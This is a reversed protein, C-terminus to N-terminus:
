SMNMDDMEADDEEDHSVSDDNDDHDNDDDDDEEEDEDTEPSTKGTLKLYLQYVNTQIPAIELFTGYKSVQQFSDQTKKELRSSGNQTSRKWKQCNLIKTKHFM